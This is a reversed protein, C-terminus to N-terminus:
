FDATIEILAFRESNETRTFYIYPRGDVRSMEAEQTSVLKIDYFILREEQLFDESYCLIEIEPDQQELKEILEKVKM